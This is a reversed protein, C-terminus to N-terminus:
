LNKIIEIAKKLQQDEESEDDELIKEIEIDPKIGEKDIKLGSPTLFYKETIKVVSGNSLEHMRQISGKGFSNKGIIITGRNDRMAGALIESASATGENILIVVPYDLFIPSIFSTRTLDADEINGSSTEAVVVSGSEIFKSSITIAAGFIGGPNNRLDLIIRDASSAIIERSIRDFDAVINEHFHYLEIHAINENAMNWEISPIKITDRIITIEIVDEGERYVSLTVPENKPGRIKMVAEDLSIKETSEGDIELIIDGARMGARYAPTNKLPSIVQLTNNRIGIEIGVGQFEGSVDELFIKSREPNFFVTHDDNLAGILGNIIGQELEKKEIENFGPFNKQLLHYVESFLSLDLEKSPNIIVTEGKGFYFGASFIAGAFLIIFFLKTIKNM